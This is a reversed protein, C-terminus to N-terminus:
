DLCFLKIKKELGFFRGSGTVYLGSWLGDTWDNIEV